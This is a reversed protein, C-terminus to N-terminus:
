AVHARRKEHGVCLHRWKFAKAGYFTARMDTVRSTNWKNLDGNFATAERFMYGISVVRHMSWRSLDGNFIAAGYFMVGM